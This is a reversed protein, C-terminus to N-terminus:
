THILSKVHSAIIYEEDTHSVKVQVSSNKASINTDNNNNKLLDIRLGLFTLKSCIRERIQPANEGIGGSFIIGDLGQLSTIYAGITKVINYCFVDIAEAARKDSHQKQLLTYMDASTESIGLLGSESHIMTNFTSPTIGSQKFLYWYIGPDIDGSRTSMPIGSSPTTSMTTDLPKGNAVACISAGSGLHAFIIKGNALKPDTRQLEQLLYTYSLGHFGFKKIGLKEFKRPLPIVQSVRPLNRFFETDYCAVHAIDTYKDHLKDFLALAMPLHDPDFSAFQELENRIQINIIEHKTHKPGGHVIRHGVGELSGNETQESVWTIVCDIANSYNKISSNTGTLTENHASTTKILVNSYGIREITYTSQVSLQQSDYLTAKISSSGANVSLIYSNVSKNKVNSFM